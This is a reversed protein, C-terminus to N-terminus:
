HWFPLTLQPKLKNTDYEYESRGTEQYVSNDLDFQHPETARIVVNLSICLLQGFVGIALGKQWTFCPLKFWSKAQCIIQQKLRIGRSECVSM